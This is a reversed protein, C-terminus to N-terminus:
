YALCALLKRWLNLCGRYLNRIFSELDTLTQFIDDKKALQKDSNDLNM